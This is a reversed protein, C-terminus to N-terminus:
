TSTLPPTSCRAASSIETWDTPSSGKTATGGSIRKDSIHIQLLTYILLMQVPHVIGNDWEGGKWSVVISAECTKEMRAIRVTGARAWVAPFSCYAEVDLDNSFRTVAPFRASIPGRSMAGDDMVKLIPASSM